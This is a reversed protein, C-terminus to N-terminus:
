DAMTPPKSEKKVQATCISQKTFIGLSVARAVAHSKTKSGLKTMSNRPHLDFFSNFSPNFPCLHRSHGTTTRGRHIRNPCDFGILLFVACADSDRSTLGIDFPHCSGARNGVPKRSLNTAQELHLLVAVAGRRGQNAMFRCCSLGPVRGPREQQM